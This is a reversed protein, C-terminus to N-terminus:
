GLLEDPGPPHRLRKIGFSILFLSLLIQVLGHLLQQLIEGGHLAVACHVRVGRATLPLEGRGSGFLRLHAHRCVPGVTKIRELLEEASEFSRGWLAEDDQEATTVDGPAVGLRELYNSETSFKSQQLLKTGTTVDSTNAEHRM